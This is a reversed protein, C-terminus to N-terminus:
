AATQLDEFAVRNGHTDTIVVTRLLYALAKQRRADAYLPVIMDTRVLQETFARLPAHAHDALRAIYQKFEDESVDIGNEEAIVDLTLHTRLRRAASDLLSAELEAESMGKDDLFEKLTRGEVRLDSLLSTRAILADDRIVEDLPLPGISASLAALSKDRAALMRDKRRARLLEVRVAGRLQELSTNAVVEAFEDDLSLLQPEAVTDVTILLDAERRADRGGVLWTRIATTEDARMGILAQDLGALVHGSGVQHVVGEARGHPVDVGNITARLNIQVMDGVVAPRAVETVSVYDRRLADLREDVERASVELPEIEVRLTSLEPVHIPPRVDVTATARVGVPVQSEEDFDAIAITPRRLPVLGMTRVAHVARGALAETLGGAAMQAVDEASLEVTLRMPGPGLWTM